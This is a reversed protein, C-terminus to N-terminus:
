GPLLRGSLTLSMMWIPLTWSFTRAQPVSGRPPAYARGSLRVCAGCIRADQGRPQWLRENLGGSKAHVGPRCGVASNPPTGNGDEAPPFVDHSLRAALAGAGVRGVRDIAVVVAEHERPMRPVAAGDRDAGLRERAREDEGGAAVAAVEVLQGQSADLIPVAGA